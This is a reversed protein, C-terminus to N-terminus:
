HELAAWDAAPEAPSAKVEVGYVAPDVVANMADVLAHTAEEAQAKPASLLIEDHVPLMLYDELGAEAANVLEDLNEIRDRGEKDTKYFEVLGSAQLMHEIIDRLTMGHTKERMADIMAVFAQVNGGGKGADLSQSAEIILQHHEFGQLGYSLSGVASPIVLTAILEAQLAQRVGARQAVKGPLGFGAIAQTYGSVRHHAKVFSAQVELLGPLQKVAEAIM